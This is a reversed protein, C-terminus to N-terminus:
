PRCVSCPTYGHAKASSLSIPIKSKRLYRCGSTHYKSGNNTIYVTRSDSISSVPSQQVPEEAASAAPQSNTKDYRAKATSAFRDSYRTNPSVSATVAYGERLLSDNHMTGDVYVYALIRGYEDREQVDFELEVQKGSLRSQTYESAADAHTERSADPNVSGSTDVGILRVTEESGGYDVVITDGDVVRVVNYLQDSIRVSKTYPDWNVSAGFAEAIFRAPIMTKGGIIQPPVNLIHITDNVRAICNGIKMTVTVTDSVCEVTQSSEDWTVTAGLAESISRAPVLTTGDVVVASASEELRVSNVYTDVAGANSLLLLVTLFLATLKKM